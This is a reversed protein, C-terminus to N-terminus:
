TESSAWAPLPKADVLVFFLRAPKNGTNRWAHRTGVQVVIDGQRLVTTRGGDLELTVEGELVVGYDLTDTRHFGPKEAEFREALGPMRACLEAGAAVPDFDAPM